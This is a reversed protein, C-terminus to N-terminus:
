RLGSLYTLLTGARLPSVVGYRAAVDIVPQILEPTLHEPYSARVMKALV